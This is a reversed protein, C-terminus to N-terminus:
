KVKWENDNARGCGSKSDKYFSKIRTQFIWDKRKEKKRRKENIGKILSIKHWHRIIKLRSEIRGIEEEEEEEEIGNM